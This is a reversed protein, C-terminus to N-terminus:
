RGIPAMRMGMTPVRGTSSRRGTMRRLTIGVGEGKVLESAAGNFSMTANDNLYCLDGGRQDKNNPDKKEKEDHDDVCSRYQREIFGPELDWGDGVWSGQTNNGSTRGDISGSSYSLALEPATGGPSAPAEIPYSWSFSGSQKDAQWTSSMGLSTAKYDGNEGSPAAAVAVDTSAGAAALAVTGTLSKAKPDNVTPIRRGDALSVLQLRSLADSGFLGEFAGYALTVQVAGAQAVGDARNLRVVLSNDGLARTARRDLVQVRVKAVGAGAVETGPKSGASASAAKAAAVYVPLRGARRRVTSDSTSRAASGGLDVVQATTAIAPDPPLDGEKLERDDDDPDRLDTRPLIDKVKVGPVDGAPPAAQAEPAIVTQVLGGVVLSSAVLFATARSLRRSSSVTRHRMSLLGEGLM